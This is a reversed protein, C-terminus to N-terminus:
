EPEDPVDGDSFIKWKFLPVGREPDCKKVGKVISRACYIRGEQKSEMLALATLLKSSLSTRKLGEKFTIRADEIRKERQHQLAMLLYTDELMKRPVEVHEPFRYLISKYIESAVNYNKQRIATRARAHLNNIFPVIRTSIRYSSPKSKALGWGDMCLFALVLLSFRM